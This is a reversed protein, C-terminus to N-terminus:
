RNNWGFLFLSHERYEANFNILYTPGTLLETTLPNHHPQAKQHPPCATHTRLQRLLAHSTFRPLLWAQQVCLWPLSHLCHPQTLATGTCDWHQQPHGFVQGGETAAQGCVSRHFAELGVGVHDTWTGPTIEPRCKEALSKGRHNLPQSREQTQRSVGHTDTVTHPPVWSEVSMECLAVSGPCQHPVVISLAMMCDWLVQMQLDPWRQWGGRCSKSFPLFSQM